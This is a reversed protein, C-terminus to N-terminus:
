SDFVFSFICIYFPPICPRRHHILHSRHKLFHKLFPFYSIGDRVGDSVLWSDVSLSFSGHFFLKELFIFFYSFGGVFQYDGDGRM